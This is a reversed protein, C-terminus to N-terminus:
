HSAGNVDIGTCERIATSIDIGKAEACKEIEAVKADVLTRYWRGQLTHFYYGEPGDLFGLRILYRYWFYLAARTGAPLRAYLNEKIWRKTKAQPSATGTLARKPLFRHRANLVEIAERSAYSNHKATWWTLSNLNIDATVVGSRAVGGAVMVHEDMWRQECCGRGNRWLRLQWSPEIAGHRIRRGLFHIRRQILLGDTADEASGVASALTCKSDPDLVEDADIRFLWGGRPALHDIAFNVQGAHTVFPNIVVDAGFDRAIEATRDKSGSDVLTITACQERISSICRAIHQEEDLTLIIAHIAPSTM